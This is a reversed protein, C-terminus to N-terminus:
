RVAPPGLRRVPLGISVRVQFRGDTMSEAQIDGKLLAVIRQALSLGLGCHGTDGRTGDGRWFRDFVREIEEPSLRCGTNTIEILAQSDNAKAQVAISGGENTYSVANDLLNQFVQRLKHGDTEVLCPNALEWTIRLRREAAERDVMAWCERLLAAVDVCERVVQVQGAEMRALCLLNQVMTQMQCTIALSEQIATRYADPERPKSASVELTSRLGALPTRLEHAVDSTFAKERRFSAELRALLDNLRDVMPALEAPAHPLEVRASLNGEGLEEIRTALRRLPRLGGHVVSILMASTVIVAASGVVILLYRLRALVADIEGTQRALVLTM